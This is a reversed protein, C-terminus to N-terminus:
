LRCQDRSTGDLLFAVGVFSGFYAAIFRGHSVEESNLNFWNRSKFCAFLMGIRSAVFHRRQAAKRVYRPLWLGLFAVEILSVKVDLRDRVNM